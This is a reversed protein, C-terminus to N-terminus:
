LEYHGYPLSRNQAIWARKDDKISLALKNYRVTQLQHNSSGIRRQDVRVRKPSPPAGNLFNDDGDDDDDHEHFLFSRYVELYQQHQLNTRRLVGKAKHTESGCTSLMSYCKPRLFVWEMFEEQGGSEDKFLGVKNEVARSFLPSKADYNSTDLLGDAKMAPLLETKLDIGCVELFFSDTDGAIINIRSGAFRNRYRELEDYQLRYMRLKSLDLVAQGIYVPRDLCITEKFLVAAVLNEAIIVSSRFLPKSSQSVFQTRNNCLRLDKRKRLNEVTKGYLANNKLKYYDKKFKTTSRARMETNKEVYSRFVFRQNFRIARHVADVRVGLKEVYFKLLASHIIYNRKPELTMLLKKWKAGVPVQQNPAPPMDSLYDHFEAPVSIDVQLVYGVESNEDPLHNVIHQLEAAGANDDDDDDDGDGRTIWTFGDSPLKQSLAWGYLNNIDIYLLQSEESRCAYHRNVFTMGGRIGSEFFVYMDKDSLLQLKNPMSRLAACWSLGPIGLFNAPDLGDEALATARFTEFVDALLYVDVKLYIMMYDKLSKCGCRQWVSQARQYDDETVSITDLLMDHFAVERSPLGDREMELVETSTIFSYPFIGKGTLAEDPLSAKLSDTHKREDATLMKVLNLLSANLFQLSDIFRIPLADKVYATVSQFRETSQAICSFEWHEMKNAGYKVIHHADYGRFNHFVVPLVPKRIRRALNCQNCAAGLFKGNFHDHDRVKVKLAGFTAQCLYCKRAVNFLREEAESLPIMAMTGHEDYWRKALKAQEELSKLFDVVCESGYFQRYQPRNPQLPDITLSGAAIPLHEQLVSGNEAPQQLMSEFDAYVIFKTAITKAWQDFELTQKTPMTYYTGYVRQHDCLVAHKKLARETPFCRLCSMCVKSQIRVPCIESDAHCNLLRNLKTIALYHFKEGDSDSILLLNCVKFDADADDGRMKKSKYVTELCPHKFIEKEADGTDTRQMRSLPVYRIVNVALSPNQREFKSINALKMPMDAASYKLENMYPLYKAPRHRTGNPIENWKLIALISYIFCLEDDENKVNVTCWKKQIMNPTEIYSHGTLRCLDSVEAIIVSVRAIRMVRWGSGNASFQSIKEDLKESATILYNQLGGQGPEESPTSVDWTKLMQANEGTVASHQLTVQTDLQLKHLNPAHRSVLDIIFDVNESVLRFVSNWDQLPRFELALCTRRGIGRKVNVILRNNDEMDIMSQELEDDANISLSSTVGAGTQNTTSSAPFSMSPVARQYEIPLQQQKHSRKRQQQQQFRHQRQLEEECQQLHQQENHQRQQEEEHQQRQQEEVRQQEEERQQRQQEEARQQRQQEEERQKQERQQRRQEQEQKLRKQQWLRREHRIHEL